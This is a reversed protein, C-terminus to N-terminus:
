NRDYRVVVGDFTSVSSFWARKYDPSFGVYRFSPQGIDPLEDASGSFRHSSQPAIVFTTTASIPLPVIPAVGVVGGPVGRTCATAYCTGVLGIAPTFVVGASDAAFTINNRLFLGDARPTCSSWGGVYRSLDGNTSVLTQVQM